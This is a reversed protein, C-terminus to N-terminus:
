FHQTESSHEFYPGWLTLQYKNEITNLFQKANSSRITIPELSEAPHLLYGFSGQYFYLGIAGVGSMKPVFVSYSFEGNVHDSLSQALYTFGQNGPPKSTISLQLGGITNFECDEMIVAFADNMKYGEDFPEADDPLRSAITPPLSHYVSQFRSFANKDGIWANSLDREIEGNRIRYISPVPVLSSVIFAVGDDHRNETSLHDLIQELDLDRNPKNKQYLGLIAHHASKVTGVFCICLDPSLVVAKLIDTLRGSRISQNTVKTDSVIRIEDVIVRAIVLTM